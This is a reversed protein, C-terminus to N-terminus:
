AVPGVGTPKATAEDKGNGKSGSDYEFWGIDIMMLGCEKCERVKDSVEAFPEHVINRCYSVRDM